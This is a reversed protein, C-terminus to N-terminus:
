LVAWSDDRVRATQPHPIQKECSDLPDGGPCDLFFCIWRAFLARHRLTGWATWFAFPTRFSM